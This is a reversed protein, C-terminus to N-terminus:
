SRHIASPEKHQTSIHTSGCLRTKGLETANASVASVNKRNKQKSQVSPKSTM